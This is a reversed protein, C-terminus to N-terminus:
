GVLGILIAGDNDIAPAGVLGTDAATSLPWFSSDFVTLTMFSLFAVKSTVVVSPFIDPEAVTFTEVATGWIGLNLIISILFIVTGALFFITILRLLFGQNM